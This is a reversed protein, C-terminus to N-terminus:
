NKANFKGIFTKIGLDHMRETFRFRYYFIVDLSNKELYRPLNDQFPYNQQFLKNKM